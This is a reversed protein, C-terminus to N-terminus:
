KRAQLWEFRSQRNPNTTKTSKWHFKYVGAGSGTMCEIFPQDVPAGLRKSFRLSEVASHVPVQNWNDGFDADTLVANAFHYHFIFYPYGGVHKLLNPDSLKSSLFVNRKFIWFLIERLPVRLPKNEIQAIREFLNILEETFSECILNGAKGALFWNSMIRDGTRDTFRRFMSLKNLGLWEDSNFRFAFFGNNAAEHIWTDLPRTCYCDADAWVGGHCAILKLRFINATKQVPLGLDLVSDVFDDSLYTRINKESLRHVTWDSNMKDWSSACIQVFAPAVEFGQLWFIWINKPIGL